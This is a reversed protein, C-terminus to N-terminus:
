LPSSHNVTASTSTDLRSCAIEQLFGSIDLLDSTAVSDYASYVVGDLPLSVSPRLADTGPVYSM